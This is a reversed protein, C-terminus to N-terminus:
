RLLAITGKKTLTEGNIWTEVTVTWFYTDINQPVGHFTGDWGVKRWAPAEINHAEFIVQGWRNFIKFEILSKIGWGRVLVSDNTRDGDPTFATPIGVNTYPKVIVRFTDLVNYCGSDQVIATYVTDVLPMVVPSECDLCSINYDPSWEYFYSSGLGIDLVLSDGIIITITTDIAPPPRNDFIVAKVRSFNCVSDESWVVLTVITSEGPFSQDYVHSVIPVNLTDTGDGFDWLITQVDVTDKIVFLITEGKCITDPDLDFDAIPGVTTLTKVITDSCGYLTSVVLSLDYTGPQTYITTVVPNSIIPSGDGLDWDWNTITTGAAVSTDYFIIEEGYCKPDISDQSSYFGAVPYNQVSIYNSAIITASCGLDDVVTLMIDFTGATDFIHTPLNDMSTTGDGFDWHYEQMNQAFPVFRISEGTCLERSGLSGFAANPETPIIIISDSATCGLTDIVTLIVVHTDLQNFVHTPHQFNTDTGDGFDWFWGTLTTDATSTDTFNVPLPLCGIISDAIFGPSISFL